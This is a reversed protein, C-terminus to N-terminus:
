PRQQTSQTLQREVQKRQRAAAEDARKLDTKQRAPWAEFRAPTVPRVFAIM